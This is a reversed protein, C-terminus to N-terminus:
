VTEKKSFVFHVLMSFFSYIPVGSLIGITWVVLLPHGAYIPSGHEYGEVFNSRVISWLLYSQWLFVRSLWGGAFQFKDNLIGASTLVGTVIVGIGLHGVLVLLGKKQLFYIFRSM